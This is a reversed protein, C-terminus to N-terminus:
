QLIPDIPQMDDLLTYGTKIYVKDMMPDPSRDFGLQEQVDNPIMTPAAALAQATQLKNQQLEKIDSIDAHIIKGTGYIPAIDATLTECVLTVTPLVANTYLSKRANDDSIESGTADNNFLRDSVGYANCLKKFDQTSLAEVDLDTLKLGLQIYGLEGSSFYPAGKNESNRLYRSFNDKRAGVTSVEAGVEDYGKEYVIGPVGGNQMQAVSADMGSQLRTLRQALVKIPSLGRISFIPDIVPNFYKIFIIEELTFTIDVQNYTDIYRYGIVERPFTGPPTTIISTYAPNLFHIKSIGANVGFEIKELYIFCEGTLFIYTYLQIKQAYTITNLFATLKDTDPLYQGKLDYGFMPISAATESLRKVISYIDDIFTYAAQEKWAIWTPFIQQTFSTIQRVSSVVTKNVQAKIDLWNAVIAKLGM